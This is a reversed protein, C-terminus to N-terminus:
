FIQVKLFSRMYFEFSVCLSIVIRLVAFFALTKTLFIFRSLKEVWGIIFILISLWIIKILGTFWLLFVSYFEIVYFSQQSWIMIWSGTQSEVPLWGSYFFVLFDVLESLWIFGPLEFSLSRRGRAFMEEYLDLGSTLGISGSISTSWGFLWIAVISDFIPFSLLFICVWIIM